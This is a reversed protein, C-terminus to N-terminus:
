GYLLEMQRRECDRICFLAESIEQESADPDSLTDKYHLCMLLLADLYTLEELSNM